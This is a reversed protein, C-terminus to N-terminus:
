LETRVSRRRLWFGLAKTFLIGGAGGGMKELADRSTGHRDPTLTQLIELVIATGFVICCVLIIQRPYASCFIAGFLAFAIVHEFSAFTRGSPQMLLPSLKFYISYILGVRTVTFYAIIAISAWAALRAIRFVHHGQM